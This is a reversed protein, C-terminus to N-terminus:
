VEEYHKLIDEALGLEMNEIIDPDIINISQQVFKRDICSNLLDSTNALFKLEDATLWNGEM